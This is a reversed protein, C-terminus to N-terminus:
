NWSTTVRVGLGSNVVEYLDFTVVNGSRNVGRLIQTRRGFTSPVNLIGDRNEGPSEQVVRLPDPFQSEILEFEDKRIEFTACALTDLIPTFTVGGLCRLHMTSPPLVLSHDTRMRMKSTGIVGGFYLCGALVVPIMIPLFKRM